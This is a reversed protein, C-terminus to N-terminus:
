ALQPRTALTIGTSTAIGPQGGGGSSIRRPIRVAIDVRLSQDVPNVLLGLGLLPLTGPKPVVNRESQRFTNSVSSLDENVDVHLAENVTLTIADLGLQEDTLPDPLVSPRRTM